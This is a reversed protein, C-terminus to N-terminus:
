LLCFVHWVAGSVVVTQASSRRYPTCLKTWPSPMPLLGCASLSWVADHLTPSAHRTMLTTSPGHYVSIHEQAEERLFLSREIEFHSLLGAIITLTTKGM